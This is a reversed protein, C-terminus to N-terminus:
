AHFLAGHLVRHVANTKRGGARYAFLAPERPAETTAAAGALVRATGGVNRSQQRVGTPQERGHTWVLPFDAPKRRPTIDGPPEVGIRGMVPRGESAGEEKVRRRM